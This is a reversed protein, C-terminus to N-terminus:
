AAVGLQAAKRAARLSRDQEKRYWALQSPTFRASIGGLVGTISREGPLTAQAMAEAVLERQAEPTLSIRDGVLHTPRPRVAESRTM